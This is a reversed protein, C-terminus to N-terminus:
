CTLAMLKYRVLSGTYIYICLTKIAITEKVGSIRTKTPVLDAQPCTEDAEILVEATLQNHGLHGGWPPSPRSFCSGAVLGANSSVQGVSTIAVPGVQPPVRVGHLLPESSAVIVFHGKEVRVVYTVKHLIFDSFLRSMVKM